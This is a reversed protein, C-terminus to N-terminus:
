NIKKNFTFILFTYLFIRTNKKIVLIFFLQGFSLSFNSTLRTEEKNKNLNNLFFFKFYIISKILGNKGEGRRWVRVKGGGEGM